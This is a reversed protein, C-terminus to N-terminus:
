PRTRDATARVRQAADHLRRAFRSDADARAHLAHAVEAVGDGGGLLLLDVGADVAALATDPLSRGMTTAPADLDDSVVLGTFGLEERLLQVVARSTSAPQSDLQAVPAPGLMAATAGAALVARFPVVQEPSWQGAPVESPAEAPDATVAPFGPVHKPVALVGGDQVGRVFAAALEGIREPDADLTRGSLWPNQGTLRDLVPSLVATVGMGRAARAFDRASDRLQAPDTDGTVPPLQPALHQLRRTGWPEHDVAVVLEAGATASAHATFRTVDAVSEAREREPTMRRDVYEQRDEGLVVARTGGALAADLWAAPRLDTIAPFLVAHADRLATDTLPSM